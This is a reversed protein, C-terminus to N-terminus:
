DGRSSLGIKMLTLFSQGDAKSCWVSCCVDPVNIWKTKVVARSSTCLRRIKYVCSPWSVYELTCPHYTSPSDWCLLTVQNSQSSYLIHTHVIKMSYYLSMGNEYFLNYDRTQGNQRSWELKEVDWGLYTIWMNLKFPNWPGMMKVSWSKEVMWSMLSWERPWWSVKSALRSNAKDKLSWSNWWSTGRVEGCVCIINHQGSLEGCWQYLRNLVVM